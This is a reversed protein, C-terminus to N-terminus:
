APSVLISILIKLYLCSLFLNIIYKDSNYAHYITRVLEGWESVRDKAVHKVAVQCFCFLLWVVHGIVLCRWFAPNRIVLVLHPTSVPAGDVTRTGSYVTGFGGSGLVAGVQYLKEFPEREKVAFNYFCLCLAHAVVDGPQFCVFIVIWGIIHGSHPKSASGDKFAWRASPSSGGAMAAAEDEM